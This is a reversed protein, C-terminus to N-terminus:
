EKKEEVLEYYVCKGKRIKKIIGSDYLEKLPVDFTSDPMDECIRSPKRSPTLSKGLKRCCELHLDKRYTTGISLRNRVIQKVREREQQRQNRQSM